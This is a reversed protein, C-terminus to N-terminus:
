IAKKAEKCMQWAALIDAAFVFSAIMCLFCGLGRLHGEKRCSVAAICGCLGTLFIALLCIPQYFTKIPITMITYPFIYCAQFYLLFAPIQALKLNRVTKARVAASDKRVTSLIGWLTVGFFGCVFVALSSFLVPPAANEYLVGFVGRRMLQAMLLVHYPFYGAPLLWLFRKNM